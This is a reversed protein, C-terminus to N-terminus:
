SFSGDYTQIIQEQSQLAEIIQNLRDVQQKAYDVQQRQMDVKAADVQYNAGAVGGGIQRLSDVSFSKKSTLENLYEEMNKLEEKKEKLEARSVEQLGKKLKEAREKDQKELERGIEKNVSELEKRYDLIKGRNQEVELPTAAKKSKLSAINEELEKQKQLLSLSRFHAEEEKKANQERLKILEEAAKKEEEGRKKAGELADTDVPKNKKQEEQRKREQEIQLDAAAQIVDDYAKAAADLGSTLNSVYATIAAFGTGLAEVRKLVFNIAEAGFAKFNGWLKEFKETVDKITAVTDNSAAKAAAMEEALAEPGKRLIPIVELGTKGLAKYIADLTEGNQGSKEFGESLLKLQEEPSANIFEKADVGLREFAESLEENGEVAEVANRNSKQLTKVLTETDLGASKAVVGLRQVSEASTGLKESLDQIHSFEEFLSKIGEIVATLAFAEALEKGVEGFQETTHHKFSDLANEVRALGAAFPTSDASVKVSVQESM